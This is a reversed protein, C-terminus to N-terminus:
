LGEVKVMLAKEVEPISHRKAFIVVRDGPRIITDGHPIITQGERSVAGIIADGPFQIEKLPRNVLDSTGQAVVEIAEARERGLTAVSLVEGRRIYRLIRNVAAMQPNLVVDVGISSVLSIYSLRTVLAMTRRAGLRKALLAVLINAEEDESASIFYDVDQVNFELLLDEDTGEGCLVMVRKFEEVLRNCLAEDSCIMKSAFPRNELEQALYLAVKGGGFLIVRQTPPVATGLSGLVSLVREREAIIFIEDGPQIIDKGHPIILQTGRHLAVILIKGDQPSDAQIEQLPRHLLPSTADVTTGVLLIRGEVFEVVERVGPIEMLKLATDAAEKEPHICLDIHLPEDRFVTIARAYAEDRIRAIKTPIRAQSSAVFCCLMNVEDRDTVAILMDAQAVGAKELVDPNTGSGAIVQVDLTQIVRRALDERPEVVVVDHHELSLTQAIYLGVDGAGVIIV